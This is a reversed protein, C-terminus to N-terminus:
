GKNTYVKGKDSVMALFSFRVTTIRRRGLFCDNHWFTDSGRPRTLDHFILLKLLIWDFEGRNKSHGKQM